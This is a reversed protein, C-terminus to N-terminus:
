SEWEAQVGQLDTAAEAAVEQVEHHTTRADKGVDSCGRCCGVAGEAHLAKEASAIAGEAAAWPGAHLAEAKWAHEELNLVRYGRCFRRQGLRTHTCVDDGRHGSVPAHGRRLLATTDHLFDESRARSHLPPPGALVHARSM